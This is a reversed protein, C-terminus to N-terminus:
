RCLLGPEPHAQTLWKNESNNLADEEDLCIDYYLKLIELKRDYVYQNYMKMNEEETLNENYPFDLWCDLMIGKMESELDKRNTIKEKM